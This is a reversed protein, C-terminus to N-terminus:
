ETNILLYIFLLQDVVALTNISILNTSTILNDKSYRNLIRMQPFKKCFGELKEDKYQKLKSDNLSDENAVNVSWNNESLLFNLSYHNFIIKKSYSLLM